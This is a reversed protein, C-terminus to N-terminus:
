NRSATAPELSSIGKRLDELNMCPKFTIRANLEQFLPEAIKPMESTDKLDFVMIGGREGDPNTAFYAAEPKFEEVFNQIIQQLKGSKRAANGQENPISVTMMVRM